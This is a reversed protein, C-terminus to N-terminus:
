RVSNRLVGIGEVEVEVVDGSALPGVGAPTGTAILDGPMLTMIGALFRILRPVPFIMDSTCAQQRVKGNVRGTVMVRSPDLGTEIWPGFPCFTDFSKARTFQVDKSQLDRATVDNVCVYGLVYHLPDEEPRLDRARRGIVVGLEAEHDVRQSVAPLVIVEDPGIVASPAKLFILPDEDPPAGGMERAHAAYNKGIGIIKGPLVPPLLQVEGLRLVPGAPTLAGTLDGGYTHILSGELRGCGIKGQYNYRCLKM